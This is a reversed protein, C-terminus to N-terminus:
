TFDVLTFKAETPLKHRDQTAFRPDRQRFHPEPIDADLQAQAGQPLNAERHDHSAASLITGEWYAAPVIVQQKADVLAPAKDGQLVGQATQM